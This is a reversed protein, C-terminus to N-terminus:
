KSGKEWSNYYHTDNRQYDNDQLVNNVRQEPPSLGLSDTAPSESPAHGCDFDTVTASKGGRSRHWFIVLRGYLFSGEGWPRTSRWIPSISPVTSSRAGLRVRNLRAISGLLNPRRPLHPGILSVRFFNIHSPDRPRLPGNMSRARADGLRPSGILRLCSRSEGDDSATMENPMTPVLTHGV